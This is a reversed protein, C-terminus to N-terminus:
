EFKPKKGDVSDEMYFLYVQLLSKGITGRSMSPRINVHCMGCSIHITKRLRVGKVPLVVVDRNAMIAMM